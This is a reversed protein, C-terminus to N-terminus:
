SNYIFNKNLIEFNRSISCDIREDRYKIVTGGILNKVINLKLEINKNTKKAIFDKIKKLMSDDLKEASDITAVLINKHDRYKLIFSQILQLYIEERNNDIILFFLHILYSSFNEKSFIRVLLDKKASDSIIKSLFFRMLDESNESFIKEIVLFNEYLEDLVDEEVGIDFLASSYRSALEFYNVNSL